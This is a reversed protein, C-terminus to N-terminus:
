KDTVKVLCATINKNSHISSINSSSYGPVVISIVSNEDPHLNFLQCVDGLDNIDSVDILKIKNNYAILL